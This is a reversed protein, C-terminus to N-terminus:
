VAFERDCVNCRMIDGPIPRLAAKEEKEIWCAPCYFNAGLMPVFNRARESAMRAHHLTAKKQQLETELDLIERQLNAVDREFQKAIQEAEAFLRQAIGMVGEWPSGIM